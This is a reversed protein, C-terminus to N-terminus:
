ITPLDRSKTRGFIIQCDFFAINPCGTCTSAWHSLSVNNDNYSNSRALAETKVLNRLRGLYKNMDSAAITNANNHFTSWLVDDDVYYHRDVGGASSYNIRRTEVAEYYEGPRYAKLPCTNYRNAMAPAAYYPIYDTTFDCQRNILLSTSLTYITTTVEAKTTSIMNIGDAVVDIAFISRALGLAAQVESIQGIQTTLWDRREEATVSGTQTLEVTFKVVDSKVDIVNNSLNGFLRNEEAEIQTIAEQLSVADNNLGVFLDSELKSKAIQNAALSSESTKSIPDVVKTQLNEKNCAALFLSATCISISLLKRRM